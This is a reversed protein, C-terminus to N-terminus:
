CGLSYFILSLVSPGSVYNINSPLDDVPHFTRMEIGVREFIEKEKLM